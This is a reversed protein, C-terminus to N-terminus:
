SVKKEKWTLELMDWEDDNNFLKVVKDKKNKPKEQDRTNVSHNNWWFDGPFMVQAEEDTTIFKMQNSLKSGFIIDTIYVRGEMIANFKNLLIMGVVQDYPEEPIICLKLGANTYKEIQEIEEASIIISDQVYNEVFWLMRQLAINQERVCDTEVDMIVKMEYFNIMFQEEFHLGAIFNIEREVKVGM